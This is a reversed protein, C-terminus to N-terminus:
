AMEDNWEQFPHESLWSNYYRHDASVETLIWDPLQFEQFESDLEIEAMILGDNKGSFVDIEWLFGDHLVEYRTKEVPGSIALALLEQADKLPVEYEFEPRSISESCGKITLFAKEGAIRIRVTRNPDISLYAQLLKTGRGEPIWRAPDVLFKREIELAM